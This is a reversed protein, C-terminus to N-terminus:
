DATQIPQLEYYKYKRKLEQGAKDIGKFLCHLNSIRKFIIPQSAGFAAM